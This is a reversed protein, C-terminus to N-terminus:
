TGSPQTPQAQATTVTVTVMDIEHSYDENNKGAEWQVTLEYSHEKEGAASAPPLKGGTAVWTNGEARELQKTTVSEGTAASADGNQTQGRLSFTLPLNGTTEVRIEYSLAVDSQQSGDYNRVTFVTSSSQVPSLNGLDVGFNVSGDGIFSAIQAQGGATFRSAYKALTGTSALSTVVAALLLLVLLRSKKGKKKM